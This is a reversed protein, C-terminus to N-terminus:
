QAFPRECGQVTFFRLNETGSVPPGLVVTSNMGMPFALFGADLVNSFRDAFTVFESDPQVSVFASAAGFAVFPTLFGNRQMLLPGNKSVGNFFRLGAGTEFPVFRDRLVTLRVNGAADDFAVVILNDGAASPLAFPISRRTTVNTVTLEPVTGPLAIPVCTSAQGFAISADAVSVVGANALSLPIDTDNVLRVTTLDDPALGNHDSCAAAMVALAVVVPYSPRFM